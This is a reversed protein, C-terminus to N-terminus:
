RPFDPLHRTFALLPALTLAARWKVRQRRKVLSILQTSFFGSMGNETRQGDEGIIMSFTVRKIDEDLGIWSFPDKM